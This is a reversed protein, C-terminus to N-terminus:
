AQIVSLRDGHERQQDRRKHVTELARGIINKRRVM